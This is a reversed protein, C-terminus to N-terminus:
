NEILSSPNKRAIRPTQTLQSMSEEYEVLKQYMRMLEAACKSETMDKVSLGYAQMVAKGDQQHAERLESPMTTEDYLDALRADRYVARADLIAQAALEANPALLRESNRKVSGRVLSFIQSIRRM